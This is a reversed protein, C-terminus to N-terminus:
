HAHVSPSAQNLPSEICVHNVRWDLCFFSTAREESRILVGYKLSSTTTRLPTDNPSCTRSLEILSETSRYDVGHPIRIALGDSLRKKLIEQLIQM